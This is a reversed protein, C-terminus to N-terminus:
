PGLSTGQPTDALGQLDVTPRVLLSKMGDDHGAPPCWAWAQLRSQWVCLRVVYPVESLAVTSRRLQSMGLRLCARVHWDKFQQPPTLKLAELMSQQVASFGQGGGAAPLRLTNINIPM